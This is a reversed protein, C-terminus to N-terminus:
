RFIQCESSFILKLAELKTTFTFSKTILHLLKMFKLHHHDSPVVHLRIKLAIHFHGSAWAASPGDTCAGTQLSNM